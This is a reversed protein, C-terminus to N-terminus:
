NEFEYDNVDNSAIKIVITDNLLTVYENDKDNLQLLVEISLQRVHRQRKSLRISYTKM